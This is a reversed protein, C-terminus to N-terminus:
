KKFFIKKKRLNQKRVENKGRKAFCLHTKKEDNKVTM